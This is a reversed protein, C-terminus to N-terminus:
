FYWQAMVYDPVEFHQYDKLSYWNGGWEFGADTFLRYCLDETDIKYPFEAERDLYPGGTVPEIRTEYDTVKIYPNYLPNIDIALGFGHKSVSGSYPIYRFNFCSTNNDEMSAEDDAEYEDALRIKEIPYNQEYLQKLIDLVTEAIHVNVIMEGEHEKEELDKHLVHLYRLDSVPVPCGDRYTKGEMRAFIEETVPLIYFGNETRAPANMESLDATVPPTEAGARFPFLSTYALIFCLIGAALFIEKERNRM